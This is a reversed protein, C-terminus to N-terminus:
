PWSTTLPTWCSPLRLRGIRDAYGGDVKDGETLFFGTRAPGVLHRPTDTLKFWRAYSEHWPLYFPVDGSVNALGVASLTASLRSAQDSTIRPVPQGAGDRVFGVWVQYGGPVDDDIDVLLCVTVDPGATGCHRVGFIPFACGAPQPMALLDRLDRLHPILDEYPVAEPDPQEPTAWLLISDLILSQDAHDVRGDAENM